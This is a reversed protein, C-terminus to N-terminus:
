WSGGGGGGFGGGSSGGSSFGSGGSWSSKGSPTSSMSSAAYSNFGSLNRTLSSTTVGAFYEPPEVGLDAMDKALKGVVGLSVALPLMEELFLHKEAIEERWKGKGLYYKLGKTQRHLSYGWATKRPMFVALVLGLISSPVAIFLPGVNGTSSIFSIVFGVFVIDLLFVLGFWKQRVKDPRTPFAKMEVLSKYLKEKFEDLYKYFENKMSSVRTKERVGRFIKQHLYQQYDALQNDAEKLKILWYDDKGSFLGKGGFASRGRSPKIREIKLYGLRALEVIEAVVDQIHVREDIITGVQAPTLNDIPHYSMPLHPRHFPSVTKTKQDETQDTEGGPPFFVNDSLFRKDRGKKWWFFIMAALPMLSVGYGWNDRVFWMIRQVPGPFNFQSNKNFGVVITFDQGPKIVETTRFKVEKLGAEGSCNRKKEGFDGAFCDIKKVNAFETNVEASASKIETPWESGTVNWYLEDQNEYRRLVRNVQYTLLYTKEGIITKDPDGIRIKKSQKLRNIQYPISKGDSNTVSVVELDTKITKGHASYTVPIVRFIGHRNQNFEVQIEERVTLSTDKNVTVRSQFDNIIFDDASRVPQAFLTFLFLLFVFLRKM